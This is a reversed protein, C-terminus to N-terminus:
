EVTMMDRIMELSKITNEITSRNWGYAYAYSAKQDGTIPDLLPTGDADVPNVTDTAGSGVQLANQLSEIVTLLNSDITMLQPTSIM